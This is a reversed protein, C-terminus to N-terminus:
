RVAAIKEFVASADRRVSSGSIMVVPGDLYTDGTSITTMAEKVGMTADHRDGDLDIMGDANTKGEEYNFASHAMVTKGKKDLACCIGAMIANKPKYRTLLRGLAIGASEVGQKFGTTVFAEVAAHSCCYCDRTSMSQGERMKLTASYVQLNDSDVKFDPNITLPCNAQDLARAGDLVKNLEEQKAFWILLTKGEHMQVVPDVRASDVRTEEAM